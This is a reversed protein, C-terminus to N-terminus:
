EWWAGTGPSEEDDEWWGRATSAPAGASATSGSSSSGGGSSSSGNRRYTPGYENYWEPYKPGYAAILADIDNSNSSKLLKRLTADQVNEIKGGYDQLIRNKLTQVNSRARTQEQSPTLTTEKTGGYPRNANQRRISFNTPDYVTEKYNNKKRDLELRERSINNREASNRATAEARANLQDQKYMEHEMRNDAANQQYMGTLMKQRTQNLRTRMNELESQRRARDTLIAQTQLPLGYTQVQNRAGLGGDKAGKGVYMLNAISSLMDGIGTIYQNARLAKERRRNEAEKDAVEQTQRNYEDWIWQFAPSYELPLQAEESRENAQKVVNQGKQSSGNSYTSADASGPMFTMDNMSADFSPIVGGQQRNEALKQDVLRQSLETVSKPAADKKAKEEAVIDRQPANPNEESYGNRVLPLPLNLSSVPLGVSANQRM